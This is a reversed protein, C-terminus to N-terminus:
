FFLQILFIFIIFPFFFAIDFAHVSYTHTKGEQWTIHSFQSSILLHFSSSWILHGTFSFFLKSHFTQYLKCTNTEGRLCNNHSFQSSILLSLLLAYSVVQSHSLFCWHPTSHNNFRVPLKDKRKILHYSIIPFIFSISFLVVQYYSSFCQYLIFHKIKCTSTAGWGGLWTHTLACVLPSTMWRPCSLSLGAWSRSPTHWSGWQWWRSVGCRRCGPLLHLCYFSFTFLM